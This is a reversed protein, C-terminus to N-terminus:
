KSRGAEANPSFKVGMILNCFLFPFPFPFFAARSASFYPTAEELIEDPRNVHEREILWKYPMKYRKTFVRQASIRRGMSYALGGECPVVVLLVGRGKDLVRHMERLAAPLNPLHELVHVAIVRDFHGDPFPLTEQCDGVVTKVDPFRERIREVMNERLDMAYYNQRQTPTLHEYALHEGIGAGIELTRQFNVPSNKVPYLHSFRDVTGYRKPLVEHWHRMFDDSIAQQEQSLPPFVKPWKGM